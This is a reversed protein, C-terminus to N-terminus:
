RPTNPTDLVVIDNPNTNAVKGSKVRSEESNAPVGASTTSSPGEGAREGPLDGLRSAQVDVVLEGGEEEGARGQALWGAVRLGSGSMAPQDDQRRAEGGPGEGRTRVAM